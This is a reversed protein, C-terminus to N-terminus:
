YVPAGQLGATSVSEEAELTRWQLRWPELTEVGGWNDVSSLFASM